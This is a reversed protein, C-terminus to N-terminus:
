KGSTIRKKTFLKRYPLKYQETRLYQPKDDYIQVVFTMSTSGLYVWVDNNITIPKSKQKIPYKKM